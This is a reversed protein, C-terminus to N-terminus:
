IPWLLSATIHSSGPQAAHPKSSKYAAAISATKFFNAIKIRNTMTFKPDTLDLILTSVWSLITIHSILGFGQRFM